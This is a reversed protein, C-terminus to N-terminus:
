PHRLLVKVDLERAPLFAIKQWTVIRIHKNQQYVLNQQYEYVLNEVHKNMQVNTIHQQNDIDMIVEQPVTAANRAKYMLSHTGSFQDALLITDYAGSLSPKNLDVELFPALLHQLQASDPTAITISDRQGNMVITKQLAPKNTSITNLEEQFYGKLDRYALAKGQQGGNSNSCSACLAAVAMLIWSFRHDM